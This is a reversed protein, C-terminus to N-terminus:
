RPQRPRVLGVVHGAEVRGGVMRWRLDRLAETTATGTAAGPLDYRARAWPPLTALLVGPRDAWAPRLHGADQAPQLVSAALARGAATAVLDGRTRQLHEAVAATTRPVVDPELGALTAARVQEAVYADAETASLPLGGRPVVELFSDVRCCHAWLLLPVDDPQYEGGASVGTGTRLATTARSRAGAALAQATTGYTTAGLHAGLERLHAWVDPLDPSAPHLAVLLLSRLSALGALPDAHLRWTVSRPGFLGDDPM